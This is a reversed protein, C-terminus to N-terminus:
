IILQSFLTLRVRVKLPSRRQGKFKKFKKKKILEADFPIQFTKWDPGRPGKKVLVEDHKKKIVNLLNKLEKIKSVGVGFTEAKAVSAEMWEVARDYFGRNFALKSIM